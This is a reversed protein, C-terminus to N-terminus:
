QLHLHMVQLHLLVARMVMIKFYLGLVPLLRRWALLLVWQMHSAMDPRRNIMLRLLIGATDEMLNDLQHRHHHRHLRLLKTGLLVVVLLHPRATVVKVQVQVQVQMVMTIQVVVALLGHLHAALPVEMGIM